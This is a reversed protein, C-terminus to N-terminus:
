SDSKCGGNLRAVFTGIYPSNAPGFVPHLASRTLKWIDIKFGTVGMVEVTQCFQEFGDTRDIMNDASCRARIAGHFRKHFLSSFLEAFGEVFKPAVAIDDSLANRM